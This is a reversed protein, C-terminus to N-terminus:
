EGVKGPFVEESEEYSKDLSRKAESVMEGKWSSGYQKAEMELTVRMVEIQDELNREERPYKAVKSILMNGIM